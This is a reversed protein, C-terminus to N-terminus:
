CPDEIPRLGKPLTCARGHLVEKEESSPTGETVGGEEANQARGLYTRRSTGGLQSMPEATGQRPDTVSSDPVSQVPCSWGRKVAAM